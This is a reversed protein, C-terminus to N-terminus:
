RCPFAAALATATVSRAPQDLSEPHKEIYRVTIDRLQQSKVSVKHCASASGLLEDAVGTVYGACYGYDTNFSSSCMQLLEQATLYYGQAKAHVPVSFFAAFALGSILLIRTM